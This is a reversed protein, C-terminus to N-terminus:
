KLTWNGTRVFLAFQSMTEERMPNLQELTVSGMYPAGIWTKAYGFLLPLECCHSAKLPSGEPRWTFKHYLVDVGQKKLYRVYRKAPLDFVRNTIAQELAPVFMSGDEAQVCVVVKNPWRINDTKKPMFDVETPMYPMINYPHKRVVRKYAALISDSPCTRLNQGHLMKGFQKSLAAAKCTSMTIGFPASFLVVREVPIMGPDTMLFAVAEAGASQGCLTIHNADGGFRHIYKRIWRLAMLQDQQGLNVPVTDPAYLYGFVGLRYSISVTVVKQSEALDPLQSDEREGTCSHFSGGHIYVVVPITDPRADDLPVPSFITLLLCDESMEMGDPGEGLGPQPCKLGRKSYDVKADPGNAMMPVEYRGAHAYPVARYTYLDAGSLTSAILLLGIIEYLKKRM